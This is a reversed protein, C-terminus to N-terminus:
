RLYIPGFITHDLLPAGAATVLARRLTETEYPTEKPLRALPSRGKPPTAALSTEVSALSYGGRFLMSIARVIHVSEWQDPTRGEGDIRALINEVAGVVLEKLEMRESLEGGTM